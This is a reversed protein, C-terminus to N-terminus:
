VVLLHLYKSLQLVWAVQLLISYNSCHHDYSWQSSYICNFRRNGLFLLSPWPLPIIHLLSQITRMKLWSVQLCLVSSTWSGRSRVLAPSRWSPSSLDCCASGLFATACLSEPVSPCFIYYYYALSPQLLTPKATKLSAKHVSLHQRLGSNTLNPKDALLPTPFGSAAHWITLHILLSRMTRLPSWGSQETQNSGPLM